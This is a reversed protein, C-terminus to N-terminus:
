EIQLLLTDFIENERPNNLLVSLHKTYFTKFCRSMRTACSGMVVGDNVPSGMASRAGARPPPPLTSMRVRRAHQLVCRKGKKGQPLPTFNNVTRTTLTRNKEEYIHQRQSRGHMGVSISSTRQQLPAVLSRNSAGQSRLGGDALPVM